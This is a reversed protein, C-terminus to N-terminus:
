SKPEKQKLYRYITPESVNLFSAVESISGKILFVGKDDLEHVVSKKEEQTMRDPSIKFSSITNSILLSTLGELSNPFNEVIDTETKAPTDYGNVIQDLIDRAAKFESVNINVCLMGIIQGSFDKIIHTSSRLMKGDKTKGRYNVISDSENNKLLRIALDTLPWGVQRGSIHGHRIAIISSEVNNTDHLVVEYQEGLMDALFDVMPLYLKLIPNM